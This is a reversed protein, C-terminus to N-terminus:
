GLRNLFEKHAGSIEARRKTVTWSFVPFRSRLAGSIITLGAGLVYLLPELTYIAFGVAMGGGLLSLWSMTEMLRCMFLARKSLGVRLKPRKGWWTGPNFPHRLPTLVVKHADGGTMICQDLHPKGQYCSIMKRGEQYVTPQNMRYEGAEESGCFPAEEALAAAPSHHQSAREIASDTEIGRQLQM